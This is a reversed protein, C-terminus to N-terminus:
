GAMREKAYKNTFDGQNILNVIIFLHDEFQQHDAGGKLSQHLIRGIELQLSKYDDAGNNTEALTEMLAGVTTGNGGHYNEKWILEMISLQFSSGLCSACQLFTQALISLLRMREQLSDVVNDTSMM